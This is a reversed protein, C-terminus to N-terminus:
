VARAFERVKERGVLYTDDMQYYHGVRSELPLADAAATM